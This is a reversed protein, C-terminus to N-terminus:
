KTGAELEKLAQKASIVRILNQAKALEADHTVLALANAALSSAVIIADPVRLHTGARIRAAEDAIRLDLGVIRYSPNASLEALFEDKHELENFEYYGVCLEAVVITPIIAEARGGDIFEVLKKSYRYYPEEKNKINLFVNVDICFKLAM